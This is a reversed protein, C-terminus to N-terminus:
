LHSELPLMCKFMQRVFCLVRLEFRLIVLFFFTNLSFKMGIIIRSLLLYNSYSVFIQLILAAYQHSVGTIKAVWSASILLIVMQLWGLCVTLSIKKKKKKIKPPNQYQAKFGPGVGQAVGGVRKQSPNKELYPRPVIQGPQSRVV